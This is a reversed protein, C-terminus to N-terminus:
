LVVIVVIPGLASPSITAHGPLVGIRITAPLFGDFLHLTRSFAEQSQLLGHRDKRM